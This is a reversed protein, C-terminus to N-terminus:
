PEPTVHQRRSRVHCFAPTQSASCWFSSTFSFAAPFISQDRAETSALWIRARKPPEQGPWGRYVTGARARLMVKEDVRTADGERDRQGAAIAVVDSLQDRQQFVQVCARDCALAAPWATLRVANEGVPAIVVVLVSPQQASEPDCGNDGSASSCVAGPEAALAPDDLTAERM